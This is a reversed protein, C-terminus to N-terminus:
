WVGDTSEEEAANRSVRESVHHWNWEPQSFNVLLMRMKKSLLNKEVKEKNDKVCNECSCDLMLETRHRSESKEGEWRQPKVAKTFFYYQWILMSKNYFISESYLGSSGEGDNGEWLDTVHGGRQKGRKNHLHCWWRREGRKNHLHCWWRREGRKNHLHCWWRREGRKNHLHCWWRRERQPWLKRLNRIFFFHLLQQASFVSSFLRTIWEQLNSVICVMSKLIFTPDRIYLRGSACVIFPSKIQFTSCIPTTSTHEPKLPKRSSETRYLEPYTNTNSVRQHVLLVSRPPPPPPEPIQGRIRVWVSLEHSRVWNVTFRYHKHWSALLPSSIVVRSCCWVHLSCFLLM